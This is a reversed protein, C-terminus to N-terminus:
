RGVMTRLSAEITQELNGSVMRGLVVRQWLEISLRDIKRSRTSLIERRVFAEVPNVETSGRFSRLDLHECEEWRSYRGFIRCKPDHETSERTSFREDNPILLVRRRRFPILGLRNQRCLSTRKHLHKDCSRRM